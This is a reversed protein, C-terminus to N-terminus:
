DPLPVSAVISPLVRERLPGDPSVRIVQHELLLKLLGAATQRADAIPEKLAMSLLLPQPHCALVYEAILHACLGSAEEGRKGLLTQGM